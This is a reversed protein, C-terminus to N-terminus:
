LAVDAEKKQHLSKKGKKLEEVLPNRWICSVGALVSM